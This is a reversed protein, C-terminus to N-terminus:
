LTKIKKKTLTMTYPLTMSKSDKSCNEKLIPLAFIKKMEWHLVNIDKTDLSIKVEAKVGCKPSDFYKLNYVDELFYVGTLEYDFGNEVLDNYIISDGKQVQYRVMLLDELYINRLNLNNIQQPKKEIKLVISEELSHYEWVGMFPGLKNHTDKLYFRTDYQGKPIEERPTDIPLITLQSLGMTSAFLFLIVSIKLFYIKHILFAAQFIELQM